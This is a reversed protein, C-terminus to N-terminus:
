SGPWPIETTRLKDLERQHLAAREALTYPKVGRYKHALSKPRHQVAAAPSAAKADTAMTSVTVPRMSTAAVARVPARAVVSTSRTLM